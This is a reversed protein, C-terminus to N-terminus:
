HWWWWPVSSNAYLDCNPQHSIKVRFFDWIKSCTLQWAHMGAKQAAILSCALSSSTSTVCSLLSQPNKTEKAQQKGNHTDHSLLCLSFSFSLFDRIKPVVAVDTAATSRQLLSVTQWVFKKYAKIEEKATNKSSCFYKLYRLNVFNVSLSVMALSPTASLWFTKVKKLLFISITKLFIAKNVLRKTMLLFLVSSRSSIMLVDNKHAKSTVQVTAFGIWKVKIEFADDNEIKQYFLPFM